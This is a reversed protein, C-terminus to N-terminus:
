RSLLKEISLALQKLKVPKSLYTTAGAALCLEQDGPMARATLAIIPIQSLEPLKRIHQIATLGDMGPMQIDMLIIDPPEGQALDIAAQGNKAVQIHYGKVDLYPVLTNINSDKDEALLILPRVSPHETDSIEPNLKLTPKTTPLSSEAPICPLKLSFCSGVGIESTAAVAGGHLEVIRKVLALGLGTGEYQRNLASEVQTFPQFLKDLHEPAIGIGTDSVIFSLYNQSSPAVTDLEVTDIPAHVLNANANLTSMKEKLTVELTVCGGESTFKVANNLLNILVQRMRREDLMLTPLNPMLKTELRIKKKLAQQKIFALSSQCLHHIETPALELEVQRAEIKSLNLVDNILELLHEGSKEITKLFGYQQETISDVIQEQLLETLGLVSNLPTRLEHSMNALFESKSQNAIEANQKAIKLEATRQEVRNELNQQIAKLEAENLRLQEEARLQRQVTITLLVIIGLGLSFIVLSTILLTRNEAVWSVDQNIVQSGPPINSLSIGQTKLEHSDFIWQNESELIPPIENIPTGQFFQEVLAVAQQGHSSGQLVKGGVIGKGVLLITDAYIPNPVSQNLAEVGEKYSLLAGQPTDRRLQGLLMIPWHDPYPAIVKKINEAVLDISEIVKEPANPLNQLGEIGKRHAVGTATSDGIVIIGESNNQRVAELLTAMSQHTEFVGTIDNAELLSERVHNIGFFVLPVDPLFSNRNKLILDLGPDDGVMLVDIPTDRYKERLNQFFTLHYHIEPYRKSDLFEHFVEVERDLEEFGQDIGAKTQQTWSLESHYSHIVLVSHGDNTSKAESSLMIFSIFCILFFRAQKFFVSNLEVMLQLM